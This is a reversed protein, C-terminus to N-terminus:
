YKREDHRRLNLARVLAWINWLLSEVPTEAATVLERASTVLKQRAEDDGDLFKNGQAVVQKLAEAINDKQTVTGPVSSVGSM